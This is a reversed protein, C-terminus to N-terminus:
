LSMSREYLDPLDNEILVVDAAKVNALIWKDAEAFTAVEMLQQGNGHANFGRVFTPIRKANVVIAVDAHEAALVGLEHHTEDHKAGLEAVGPTVLIRRAGPRALKSMLELAARFGRPNSNYADDVYIVGNSQPKVELRHKIQPATRLSAVVREPPVGVGVAAAFALAMNDGHHAGFLPATLRYPVGRWRVDVELGRPGQERRVIVLDAAGSKGCVVVRNRERQVFDSAYACSLLDEHVVLVGDPRTLVAEALEFKARAVADLSKFREYHAEGIATIVGVHPPTLQCLRAISGEGYAGMEVVFFQCGTRLRERIVRSIGMLTNVSGPTMCVNANLELIHALIHKVSTKGYSGTVGIVKPAIAELRAHAEDRFRKQIREEVPVLALDAAILLFPIAHVGVVWGVVPASVAVAVGLAMSLVLSVAAIRWARPTLNLKKKADKRPDPELLAWGVLIAGAAISWWAAPVRAGAVLWLISLAVLSLSVRRDVSRTRFLWLLFRGRHYDDQQLIHLYRLLRRAAFFGFGCAAFLSAVLEM